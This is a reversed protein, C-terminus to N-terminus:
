SKYIKDTTNKTKEMQSAAYRLRRAAARSDNVSLRIFEARGIEQGRNKKM